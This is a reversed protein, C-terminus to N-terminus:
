GQAGSTRITDGYGSIMHMYRVGSLYGLITIASMGMIGWEYILWGLIEEGWLPNSMDVCRGGQSTRRYPRRRKWPAMYPKQNGSALRNMVLDVNTTSRAYDFKAESYDKLGDEGTATTTKTVSAEGREHASHHKTRGTELDAMEGMEDLRLKLHTIM